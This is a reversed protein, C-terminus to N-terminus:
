GKLGSAAIGAFFHRQLAIFIAILPLSSVLSGAMLTPYDTLYQGQLLALGVPLTMKSNSSNVILPWLLDNWSYLSTLVTLAALTPGTMPLMIRWFIQFPGAGDLRAAEEYSDPIGAFAQRMLFTGFASFLGPIALAPLTDLLRLNKMLDFQAILFLQSPAMLMLLFAGFAVGKFPFDFRAFGYAALSSVVLQGVVRIVLAGTSMGLMAWFPVGNFFREYAGLNLSEPLFTPPVSRSEPVTKFTTLFEWLFPFVMVLAGLGLVLHIVGDGSRRRRRKVAIEAM